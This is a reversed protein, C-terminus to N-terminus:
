PAPSGPNWVGIRDGFVAGLYVREGVQQASAVAGVVAGEHRLVETVAMTAPDIELLV